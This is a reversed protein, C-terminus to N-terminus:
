QAPSFGSNSNKSSCQLFLKFYLKGKWVRWHYTKKNERMICMIKHRKIWDPFKNKPSSSFSAHKFNICVSKM